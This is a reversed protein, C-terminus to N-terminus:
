VDVLSANLRLPQGVGSSHRTSNLTLFSSHRGPTWNVTARNSGLTVGGVTASAFVNDSGSERGTYTFIAVGNADTNVLRTIANAGSCFFTVAVNAPQGVNRLRATISVPTGQAAATTAPSLIIQPAPNDPNLGCTGDARTLKIVRDSQTAYLCGEPSVAVFDGRSGDTYIDTCM